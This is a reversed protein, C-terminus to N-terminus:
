AKRHKPTHTPLLQMQANEKLYARIFDRLLQAADRDAQRAADQFAAKLDPPLRFEFRADTNPM